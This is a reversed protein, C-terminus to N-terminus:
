STEHRRAPWRPSRRDSSRSAPYGGGDAGFHHTDPRTGSLDRAPRTSLAQRLPGELEVHVHMHDFADPGVRLSRERLAEALRAFDKTAAEAVQAEVHPVTDRELWVGHNVVSAEELRGDAAEAYATLVLEALLLTGTTRGRLLWAHDTDGRSAAERADNLAEDSGDLGARAALRVIAADRM